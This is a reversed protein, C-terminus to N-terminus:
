RWGLMRYAELMQAACSTAGFREKALERARRGMRVCTERDRLLTAMRRDLTNVDKIVFGTEGERILAPVDGVATAIVARGSALAEIVVNPSGETESTHVLFWCGAIIRKVDSVFGLLTVRDRLGLREIDAELRAHEPGDGAIRLQFDIGADRLKACAEILRDWRKYPLLSGIAAISPLAPLEIDPFADVDLHNPVHAIKAPRFYRRSTAEAVAGASNFVQRRPWRAALRGTIRGSLELATAFTSRVSGVSMAGTAIAAFAVIPNLYFTYSHVVEVSRERIARRLQRVKGVVSGCLALVGAGTARISEVYCDDERFNWVAVSVEHGEHRLARVLYSLQRESGGSGLSGTLYLLRTM